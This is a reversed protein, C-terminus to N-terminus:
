RSISWRYVPSVNNAFEATSAVAVRWYYSGSSPAVWTFSARGSTNVSRGRSGAYIWARRTVDFRYLRFSVSVGAAAPSIAATLTVPAGVKARAVVSSNRGALAVTRRVLVRVDWQAPAVGLAGGYRFRFITNSAPTVLLSARGDETSITTVPVFQGSSSANLVDVTAPLPSGGLQVDIRTSAGRVLVTPDATAALTTPALPTVSWSGPALVRNGAADKVNGLTVVYTAGPQLTLSPTFAGTRTVVDYTYNGPVLAGTASQVILGLDIWSAADM